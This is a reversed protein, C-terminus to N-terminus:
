SRVGRSKISRRPDFVAIVDHDFIPSIRRWAEMGLANLPTGAKEAEAVAAGVIGHAERFSVGRGVLYDVLDAAYLGPDLVAAPVEARPRIHGLAEALVRMVEIPEEVGERLPRKDAQLDKNYTSPLGKLTMFTAMLRGAAAGSAARILEFIDPNKKQPMLSSSTAVAADMEILGFERTVYIVLDSALRGVDLMMVAMAYLVDLIFTRDAVADMPNETVRGFGLDARMKERDLAVTSGALAGSGLPLVDVRALAEGLR